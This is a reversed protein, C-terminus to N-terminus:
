FLQPVEKLSSFTTSLNAHVMVMGQTLYEYYKINIDLEPIEALHSIASFLVNNPQESDNLVELCASVLNRPTGINIFNDLPKSSSSDNYVISIICATSTFRCNFTTKGIYTAHLRLYRFVNIVTTVNVRVEDHVPETSTYYEKIREMGWMSYRKAVYGHNKSDLYKADEFKDYAFIAFSTSSLRSTSAFKM